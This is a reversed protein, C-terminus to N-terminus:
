LRRDMIPTNVKERLYKCDYFDIQSKRMPHCSGGHDLIVYSDRGSGDPPYYVCANDKRLAGLPRGPSGSNKRMYDTKEEMGQFHRTPRVLGGGNIIIYNDRGAGDGWYSVHKVHDTRQLSKIVLDNM